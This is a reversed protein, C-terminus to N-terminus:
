TSKTFVLLRRTVHVGRRRVSMLRVLTIKERTEKCDDFLYQVKRSYIRVVGLMLQGSLRLAIPEGDQLIADADETPM